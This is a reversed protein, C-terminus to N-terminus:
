KWSFELDKIIQSQSIIPLPDTVEGDIHLEFHLHPGTSIGTSGVAGIVQGRRVNAGILVDEPISDTQLHAYITEWREVEDDTIPVIHEIKVWYGYGQNVGAESVIGNLIAKVPAGAGPVFDVGQHDSSCADCPAVRWGFDSSIEPDDVPLVANSYNLYNPREIENQYNSRVIFPARKPAQFAHASEIDFLDQKAPAIPEGASSGSRPITQEVNPIFLMPLFVYCSVILFPLTLNRERLIKRM